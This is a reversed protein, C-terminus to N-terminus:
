AEGYLIFNIFMEVIDMDLQCTNIELKRILTLATSLFPNWAVLNIADDSRHYIIRIGNDGKKVGFFRM